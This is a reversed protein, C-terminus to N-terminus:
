GNVDAGKKPETSIDPNYYHIDALESVGSLENKIVNYLDSRVRVSIAKEGTLNFRKNFEDCAKQRTKLFVQLNMNIVENNANAESTILREAKEVQINNIGLYTLVENWIHQKYKIIDNAIFPAETKISSIVSGEFLNKDGFIVPTNGDYQKYMNEMTLRQKDTCIILVPTKQARINIFATQEAEYLRYAFLQMTEYTPRRRRNNLVLIAGENNQGKLGSYVPLTKNYEFSYCQIMTPLGYINLQGATCAKTNIFGYDEDYLFAAMGYYYLVEELYDGDMGDPLNVWEFVSTAIRFLRDLYDMYTDNNMLAQTKKNHKIILYDNNIM